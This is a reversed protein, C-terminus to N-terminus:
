RPVMRLAERFKDRGTLDTLDTSYLDIMMRVKSLAAMTTLERMPDIISAYSSNHRVEKVARLQKTNMEKQLRVVGFGGDGIMRVTKWQEKKYARRKGTARDSYKIHHEIYQDSFTTELRYDDVYDNLHHGAM